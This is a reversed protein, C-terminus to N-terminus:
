SYRKIIKARDDIKGGQFGELGELFKEIESFLGKFCTQFPKIAEKELGVIMIGHAFDSVIAWKGSEDYFFSEHAKRIGLGKDEHDPIQSYTHNAIYEQHTATVPVEIAHIMQFPPCSAIFVTSGMQQVFSILKKFDVELHFWDQDKLFYYQDFKQKFVQNPFVVVTPNFHNLNYITRELRQYKCIQEINKILFNM